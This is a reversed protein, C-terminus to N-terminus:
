TLEIQEEPEATIRESLYKRIEAIDEAELGYLEYVKEDIKSDVVAMRADIKALDPEKVASSEFKAAVLRSYESQLLAMMKRINDADHEVNASNRPVRLNETVEFITKKSWFRRKSKQDIWSRLALQFFTRMSPDTIHLSILPKWRDENELLVRILLSEGDEEVSVDRVRGEAKYDVHEQTKVIDVTYGEGLFAKTPDYYTSLREYEHRDQRFKKVLDRFLTLLDTKQRNLVLMEDVLRVIEASVRRARKDDIARIPLQDLYNKKYQLHRGRVHLSSFEFDYYFTLLESNLLGLIYKLDAQDKAHCVYAKNLCYYNEDDFTALIRPGIERVLLKPQEFLSSDRLTAYEHKSKDILGKDFEVWKGNWGLSYRHCDKGRLLPKCRDNKRSDHVLKHRINGTHIAENVQIITGFPDTDRKIRDILELRDTTLKINFINDPHELFLKQPVQGLEFDGRLFQEQSLEGAVEILNSNRSDENSERRLVYVFPYTAAHRFVSFNSVDIIREIACKDLILKRIKKGYGAVTFKNSTIFGLRGGERLLDIGKQIFLVYIDYQGFASTYNDKYYAKDEQPLKRNRIYPPNGIVVSFGGAGMIKRFEKSWDFPTKGEPDEFYETLEETIGEVLSNGHKITEGLILPLKEQRKLAKLMLNVAAIEAAQPDVDVGHLNDKLIRKEVGHVLTEYDALKQSNRISTHQQKNYEEYYDRIFDFAKILFSGSGCAPDLVRISQVEEPPLEELEKGLTNSVIYEVIHTPTYYIGEGKRKEPSKVLDVGKKTEELIYGIYDEYILGLVDASILDFNIDYFIGIVRELAKNDIKLDECRHKEFLRSNYIEDFDRFLTKLSRMFPTPLGRSKWSDLEKWISDAGIIGKDEAVRIVIIRDLIKQVSERLEEQSLGENGAVISNLLTRRAEFLDDLVKEDIPNRTRRKELTDLRGVVASERSLLWIKEFADDETYQDFELSFVLGEAPRNVHSYYLRIEEFNTLVVWDVKLHWAYRIAQEPFTETRGRTVRKGDLHEDFKKLEVLLKPRKGVNLSYDVPGTLTRRQEKVEDINRTDWGLASLLPLIFKSGVDAESFQSKKGRNLIDAYKDVLQQIQVRAHDKNM